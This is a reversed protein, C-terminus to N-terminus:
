AAVGPEVEAALEIAVHAVHAVHAVRCLSGDSSCAPGVTSSRGFAWVPHFIFSAVLFFLVTKAAGRTREPEGFAEM